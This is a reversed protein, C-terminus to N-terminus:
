CTGEIHLSAARLEHAFVQERLDQARMKIAREDLKGVAAFCEISEGDFIDAGAAAAFEAYNKSSKLRDSLYRRSQATASVARNHTSDSGHEVANESSAHVLANKGNRHDSM